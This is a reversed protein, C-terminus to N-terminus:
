FTKFQDLCSKMVKMACKINKGIPPVGISVNEVSWAIIHTSMDM